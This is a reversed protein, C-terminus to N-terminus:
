SWSSSASKWACYRRRIACQCAAYGPADEVDVVGRQRAVGFRHQAVHAREAPERELRFHERQLVARAAHGGRAGHLHAVLDHRPVLRLPRRVLRPQLGQDPRQAVVVVGPYNCTKSPVCTPCPARTTPTQAAARLSEQRAHGRKGCRGHAPREVPAGPSASALARGTAPRALCTSSAASSTAASPGYGGGLTVSRTNWRDALEPVDAASVLRAKAVTGGITIFGERGINKQGFVAVDHQEVKRARTRASGRRCTEQGTGVSVGVRGGNRSFATTANFHRSDTAEDGLSALLCHNALNSIAGALGTKRDCLLGLSDGHASASPRTSRAKASSSASASPKAHTGAAAGSRGQREGPELGSAGGHRGQQAIQAHAGRRVFPSAPL